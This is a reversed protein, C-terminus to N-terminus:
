PHGDLAGVWDNLDDVAIFLVNPKYVAPPACAVSLAMALLISIRMLM